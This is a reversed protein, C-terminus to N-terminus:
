KGDGRWPSPQEPRNVSTFDWPTHGETDSKEENLMIDELNM